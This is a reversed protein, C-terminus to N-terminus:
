TATGETMALISVPHAASAATAGHPLCLNTSMHDSFKHARARAERALSSEEWSSAVSLRRNVLKEELKSRRIGRASYTEWQSKTGESLSHPHITTHTSIRERTVNRSEPFAAEEEQEIQKRTTDDTTNRESSELAFRQVTPITDNTNSPRQREYQITTTTHQTVGCESTTSRQFM